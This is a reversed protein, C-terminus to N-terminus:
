SSCYTKLEDTTMKTIQSATYQASAKLLVPFDLFNAALMVSQVRSWPGSFFELEWKEMTRHKEPTSEEDFPKAVYKEAYEIVRKLTETNVASLPVPEDSDGYCKVINHITGMLSVVNESITFPTGENSVITTSM